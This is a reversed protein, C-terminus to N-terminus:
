ANSVPRERSTQGLQPPTSTSTVVNARGRRADDGIQHSLEHDDWRRRVTSKRDVAAVDTASPLHRDSDTQWEFWVAGFMSSRM